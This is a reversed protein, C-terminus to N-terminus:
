LAAKAFVIRENRQIEIATDNETVPKSRGFGKTQLRGATIGHAVLWDVVANARKRTIELDDEANGKTSFKHSEVIVALNANEKLYKLVDILIKSDEENVAQNDPSFEIGYVAVRSHTQMERSIGEADKVPTWPEEKAQVVSLNYFDGSVNILIWTDGKRATITSPSASYKVVFGAIPALQMLNEFAQEQQGGQTIQYERFEYVGGVSKERAFGHADPKLPMTVEVSDGSRCSVVVSTALKPFITLNPCGTADANPDSQQALCPEPLHFSCALAIGLVLASPLRNAAM